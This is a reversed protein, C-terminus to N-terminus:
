VISELENVVSMIGARQRPSYEVCKYVLSTFLNDRAVPVPWLDGSLLQREKEAMCMAASSTFQFPDVVGDAGELVILICGFAWVDVSVTLARFPNFMPMTRAATAAQELAQWGLTGGRPKPPTQGSPLERALGFDAIKAVLSGDHQKRM